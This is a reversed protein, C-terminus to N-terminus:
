SPGGFSANISELSMYKLLLVIAKRLTAENINAPKHSDLWIVDIFRVPLNYELLIKFFQEKTM